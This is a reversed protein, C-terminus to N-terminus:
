KLLSPIYEFEQVEISRHVLAITRKIENLFYAQLQNLSLRTAEKWCQLDKLVWHVCM